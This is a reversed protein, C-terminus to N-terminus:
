WELNTGKKLVSKLNIIARENSNKMRKLKECDNVWRGRIGCQFCRRNFKNIGKPKEHRTRSHVTSSSGDRSRLAFRTNLNRENVACRVAAQITTPGERLIKRAIADDVVGDIFVEIWQREIAPTTLLQGPWADYALGLLRVAYIQVSKSHKQKTKRLVSIAHPSDTIEAFRSTLEDKLKQWSCDPNATSYRHIFDSVPGDASEYAIAM